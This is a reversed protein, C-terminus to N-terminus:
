AYMGMIAPFVDEISEVCQSFSSDSVHFFADDFTHMGVLADKSVFTESHLRAKLDYGRHPVVILDAAEELHPGAYVEERRLVKEIMPAGTEPDSMDMMATATATITETHKGGLHPTVIRRAFAPPESGAIYDRRCYVIVEHGRDALERTLEEVVREAGGMRAPIGRIGVMAIRM